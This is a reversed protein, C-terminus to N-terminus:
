HQNIIILLTQNVTLMLDFNHISSDSLHLDERPSLVVVEIITIFECPRKGQENWTLCQCKNLKM